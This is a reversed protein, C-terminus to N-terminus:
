IKYKAQITKLITFKSDHPKRNFSLFTFFQISKSSDIYEIQFIEEKFIESKLYLTVFEFCFHKTIWLIRCLSNNCFVVIKVVEIRYDVLQWSKNEFSDRNETFKHSGVRFQKIETRFTLLKLYRV